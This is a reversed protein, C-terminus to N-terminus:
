AWLKDAFHKFIREEFKPTLPSKVIERLKEEIQVKLPSLNLIVEEIRDEPFYSLVYAIMQPSEEALIFSLRKIPASLLVERPPMKELAERPLEPKAQLSPPPKRGPAPLALYSRFDGLVAGLAEPTPTPLHNIGSAILDAVEGPLYRLIQASTEPGLISLFITAKERGSLKM